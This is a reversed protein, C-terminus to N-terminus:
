RRTRALECSGPRARATGSGSRARITPLPTRLAAPAPEDGPAAGHGARVIGGPPGRAAGASGRAAGGTRLDGRAAGHDHGRRGGVGGDAGAALPAARLAVLAYIVVPLVTIMVVAVVSAVTLVRSSRRRPGPVRLLGARGPRSFMTLCAALVPESRELEQEIEALIRQEEMSLAM